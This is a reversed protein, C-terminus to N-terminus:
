FPSRFITSLAQVPEFRIFTSTYQRLPDYDCGSSPPSLHGIATRDLITKRTSQINELREPLMVM